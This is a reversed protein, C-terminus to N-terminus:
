QNADAERKKDANIKTKVREWDLDIGNSYQKFRENTEEKGYQELFRKRYLLVTDVHTKNNVAIELARDWKYMKINLKIARYYLKASLLIQEAETVKKCYLAIASNRAPESPLDKVYNIFQVKDAEDIAALAIEVTNLERCYIAMAGLTAWLTPEKVFRCLRIAKEFDAKELHEYLVKPYPSVMITLLAGDVRRVTSINGTFSQMQALKGLDAVEKTFTSKLMLDKDVYIANPYFWTILKGDSLCAIMDNGDNWMFSDVMNCIKHAEPKHVLTLFMDRNSDVFCMKRESSMDIQNLDMECIETTHEIFQTSPKGSTIDFVRVIKPNTPDIIALV